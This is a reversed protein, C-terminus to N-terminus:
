RRLLERVEAAIKGIVEDDEKAGAIM